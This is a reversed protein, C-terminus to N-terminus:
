EMMEGLELWRFTKIEIQEDFKGIQESWQVMEQPSGKGESLKNIVLKKQEELQSIEQELQDYEKKEKFSVKKKEVKPAEQVKPKPATKVVKAAAEEEKEALYIKYDSYNGPFDKIKGNGEFVFTHDVLRDMFYRDHSVVILCGGFNSLFDELINLTVIDLDNTPEDLILFNPNKILIQLLQLRRKEGGSLKGVPTYQVNPPFQFHTLLQSATITEGTGTTMVEAVDKVMEIVRKTESSLLENQTYYGFVTNDGKDIKGSDVETRGTLINLFTSKGIGNRGVVGIRDGRKFTYSFKDLIVLDKYKKNVEDLELIKSGMRAMGVNIEMQTQTTKQSAKEKIDEFADVRYKAKTTRAKPQRRIWDLEKRMLNRAKDIEINLLQVREAKKEVFYSYNGTYRFIQGNELELIVNTINDLFYRDHTVLLLSQNQTNLWGELWEIVEIDLHNTPEDLILLDPKDILLKALALRKRQGGSLAKVKQEFDPLGLKDLIQKLQYELDWAQWKDMLEIAQNLAKEEGSEMAKEYAHVAQIAESETTFIAQWVTLSEDFTPNQSLYGVTTGKRISVMGEDAPIQGTLINMLTTKGSGNAGVLAVKEGQGIGFFLNRFLWKESFAKALNDVSLINM